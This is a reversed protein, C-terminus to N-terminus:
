INGNEINNQMSGWHAQQMEIKKLQEREFEVAEKDMASKSCSSM